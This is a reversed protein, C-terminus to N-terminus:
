LFRGGLFLSVLVCYSTGVLMTSLGQLQDENFLSQDKVWTDQSFVVGTLNGDIQNLACSAM